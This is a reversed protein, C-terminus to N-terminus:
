RSSIWQFLCGGTGDSGSVTTARVRSLYRSANWRSVPRGRTYAGGHSFQQQAQHILHDIPADAELIAAPLELAAEDLPRQGVGVAM